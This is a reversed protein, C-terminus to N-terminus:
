RKLGKLADEVQRRVDDPTGPPLQPTASPQDSSYELGERCAQKALRDAIKKSLDFIGQADDASITGRSGGIRQGTAPDRMQLDWSITADTTTVVGDVLATPSIVRDTRLCKSQDFNPNGPCSKLEKMIQDRLMMEVVIGDCKKLNPNGVLDSIIMEALGKGLQSHPGTGTFANVGIAPQAFAATAFAALNLVFTFGIWLIRM